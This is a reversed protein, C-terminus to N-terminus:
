ARAGVQAVDGAVVGLLQLPQGAERDRRCPSGKRSTGRSSSFAACADGAPSRSRSITVQPSVSFGNPIILSRRRRGASPRGTRGSTPAARAATRPCRGSPSGAGPWSRATAAASGCTPRRLHGRQPLRALRDVPHVGVHGAPQPWAQGFALHARLDGLGDEGLPVDLHVEHDDAGPRVGGRRVMLDGVPDDLVAVHDHDVDAARHRGAVAGVAGAGVRDPVRGIVERRVVVHEVVGLLRRGSLTLGPTVASLTSRVARRMMSSAPYPSHNMWRVPWPM